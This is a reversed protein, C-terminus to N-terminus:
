GHRTSGPKSPEIGMHALQEIVSQSRSKWSEQRVRERGRSPDHPECLAAAIQAAFEDSNRATRVLGRYADLENFPTSIIPKGVALYEKLKVPNCAAIWDNQNWPMILVDCTAMYDAVRTYPKQGCCLVNPARLWGDALSIAGVLVFTVQPMRSAVDNFLDANFTHADVGGVFGVHPRPVGRLEDPECKNNAATAFREYDIGHDLLASARCSEREQKWLSSSCFLTLDAERKLWRDNRRIWDANVGPYEEFRDTRQYVLASRKWSRVISAAPPCAVWILPRSIGLDECASRAQQRVITGMVSAAAGPLTIPSLVGYRANIRVYGRRISRLKRRLRTIFMSGESPRPTRMGLSNIYLVPVVTSCESMMQMDYHGRNHYWWDEGGFCIIGDYHRNIAEVDETPVEAILEDSSPGRNM